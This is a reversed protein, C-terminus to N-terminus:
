HADLGLLDVDGSFVFNAAGTLLIHDDATRWDVILTGGDLVVESKRPGVGRRAAAAVSACAGTGCARTLGVGREWVRMRLKGQQVVTVFEVNAREPFLAHRELRSGLESVAATDADAVFVVCHPNGVSVAATDLEMGDLRLALANTDRAESLPIDQWAFKPPGMDITIRGNGADTCRLLGGASDIEVVPRDIETMLLRAVCRAANGCAEVENGDANFIRMLADGRAKAHELVIVQDCGIGLRRDAVARASTDDLAIASARADFVVFDNGLGHMKHFPIM